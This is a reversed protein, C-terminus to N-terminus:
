FRGGRGVPYPKHASNDAGAHITAGPSHTPDPIRM